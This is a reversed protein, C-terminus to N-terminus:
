WEPFQLERFKFRQVLEAFKSVHESRQADNSVLKLNSAM